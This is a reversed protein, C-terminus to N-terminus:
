TKAARCPRHDEVEKQKEEEERELEEQKELPKKSHGDFRALQEEIDSLQIDDAATLSGGSGGAAASRLGSEGTYPAKHLWLASRNRCVNLSRLELLPLVTASRRQKQQQQQLRLLQTASLSGTLMAVEVDDDTEGNCSIGSSHFHEEHPSSLKSCSSLDSSILSSQQSHLAMALSPTPQELSTQAPLELAIDYPALTLQKPKTKTKVASKVVAGGASGSRNKSCSPKPKRPTLKTVTSQRSQHGSRQPQKAPVTLPAAPTPAPAPPSERREGSASRRRSRRISPMNRPFLKGADPQSSKSASDCSLSQSPISGSSSSSTDTAALVSACESHMIIERYNKGHDPQSQQPLCRKWWRKKALLKSM